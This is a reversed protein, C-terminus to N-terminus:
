FRQSAAITEGFIGWLPRGSRTTANSCNNSGAFGLRLSRPWKALRIAKPLCFFRRFIGLRRVDESTEYRAELEAVSMHEVVRAM